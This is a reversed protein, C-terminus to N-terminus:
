ASEAIEPITKEIGHEPAPLLRWRNMYKFAKM